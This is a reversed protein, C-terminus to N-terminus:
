NKKKEKKYRQVDMETTRTHLSKMLTVLFTHLFDGLYVKEQKCM